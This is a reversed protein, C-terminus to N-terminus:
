GLNKEKEEKTEGLCLIPFLDRDLLVSIKKNIMEDTEGLQRRESHGIIVYRCGVDKLMDPSIEGTYAGGKKWFVDQAGLKINVPLQFNVSQLHVFAPCVVIDIKREDIDRLGQRIEVILRRADELDLNMKWNGVIIPKRM